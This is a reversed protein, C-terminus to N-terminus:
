NGGKAKAIAQTAANYFSYIGTTDYHKLTPLAAELVELLEPAARLLHEGPAYCEAFEISRGEEEYVERLPQIVESLILEVSEAPTRPVGADSHGHATQITNKM